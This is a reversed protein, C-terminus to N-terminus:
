WKEPIGSEILAQGNNWHIFTKYHGIEVKEPVALAM